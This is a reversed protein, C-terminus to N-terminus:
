CVCLCALSIGLLLRLAGTPDSPRTNSNLTLPDIPLDGFRSRRTGFACSVGGLPMFGTGIVTLPTGGDFFAGRPLVDSVRLASEPYLYYIPAGGIMDLEPRVDNNLTLSINLELAGQTPISENAFAPVYTLLASANMILTQLPWTLNQASLHVVLGGYDIFGDGYIYLAGGGASPGGLPWISSM